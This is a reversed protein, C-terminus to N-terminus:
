NALEFPATNRKLQSVQTRATRHQALNEAPVEVANVTVVAEVIAFDEGFKFVRLPKPWATGPDSCTFCGTGGSRTRIYCRMRM